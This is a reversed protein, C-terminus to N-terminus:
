KKGSKSDSAPKNASKTPSNAEEKAIPAPQPTPAPSVLSDIAAANLIDKAKATGVAPEVVQFVLRVPTGEPPIRDTHATYMLGSNVQSSKHPVDLTATAFNSVCVLDGSEAMYREEGTDPDKFMSSGAFVWNSEMTKNTGLERIWSRADVSKKKGESDVWLVLIKIESGTAAKYEPEWQVPSGVKAGIALLAAHVHYAKSFVGVVSEHEKTGAPCAFMELQGIRMAIYGDVVVLRKKSDAWIRGDLSVRKMGPPDGFTKEVKELLEKRAGVQGFASPCLLCLAAFAHLWVALQAVNFQTVM